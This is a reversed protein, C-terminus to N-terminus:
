WTVPPVKTPKVDLKGKCEDIQRWSLAYLACKRGPNMFVGERTRIILQNDMLKKLAKSLTEKSGFGWENAREFTAGLDGNNFGNYQETLMTLAARASFPLGRYRPSNAVVRPLGVFQIPKDKRGKAKERTMAM